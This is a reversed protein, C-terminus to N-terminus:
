TKPKGRTYNLFDLDLRRLMDDARFVKVDANELLLEVEGKSNFAADEVQWYAYWAWTDPCPLVIHYPPFEKPRGAFIEPLDRAKVFACSAATECISITKVM